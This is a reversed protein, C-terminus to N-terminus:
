RFVPRIPGTRTTLSSGAIQARLEAIYGKLRSANAVTYSVSEGSQDQVRVVQAGTMLAHYANEAENLRAKLKNLDDVSLTM